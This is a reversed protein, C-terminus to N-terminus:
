LNVVPHLTWGKGWYYSDNSSSTNASNGVLNPNDNL